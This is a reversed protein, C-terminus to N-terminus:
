RELTLGALLERVADPSLAASSGGANVVLFVDGRGGYALLMLSDTGALPGPIYRAREVNLAVGDRTTWTESPLREIMVNGRYYSNSELALPELVKRPGAFVTIQAGNAAPFFSAASVDGRAPWEMSWRTDIGATTTTLPDVKRWGEPTAYRVGAEALPRWADGPQRHKGKRLSPIALMSLLLVPISFFLLVKTIIPM